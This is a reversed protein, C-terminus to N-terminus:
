CRFLLSLLVHFPPYPQFFHDTFPFRGPLHQSTLSFVSILRKLKSTRFLSSRFILDVYFTPTILFFVANNWYVWLSYGHIFPPTEWEELFSLLSPFYKFVLTAPINKERQALKVGDELGPHTEVDCVLEWGTFVLAKGAQERGQFEMARPCKLHLM